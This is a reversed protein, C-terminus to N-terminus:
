NFLELEMSLVAYFRSRMRLLWPPIQGSMKEGKKRLKSSSIQAKQDNTTQGDRNLFFFIVYEGEEGSDYSM